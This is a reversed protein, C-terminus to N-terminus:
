FESCHGYCKGGTDSCLGHSGMSHFAGVRDLIVSGRLGLGGRHFTLGCFALDLAFLFLLFLKNGRHVILGLFIILSGREAGAGFGIIDDDVVLGSLLRFLGALRVLSLVGVAGIHLTVRDVVVLLVLFGALVALDALGGLFLGGVARGAGGDHVGVGLHLLAVGHHALVLVAVGGDGGGGLGGAGLGGSGGAGAFSIGGGGNGVGLLAFLDVEVVLKSLVHTRVPFGILIGLQATVGHVLDLGGLVAVGFGQGQCLSVVRSRFLFHRSLIDGLQQIDGLVAHLFLSVVLAVGGIDQFLFLGRGVLVAVGDGAGSVVLDGAVRDLGAGLGRQHELHFLAGNINIILIQGGLDFQWADSGLVGVLGLRIDDLNRRLLQAFHELVLVIVVIGALIDIRFGICVALFIGIFDLFRFVGLLKGVLLQCITQALAKGGIGVANVVLAFLQVKVLHFGHALSQAVGHLDGLDGLGGALDFATLFADLTGLFSGLQFGDLGSQRIGGPVGANIHLGIIELVLQIRDIGGAFALEIETIGICVAINMSDGEAIIPCRNRRRLRAARIRALVGLGALIDRVVDDGAGSIHVARICPGFATGEVAGVDLGAATFKGREITPRDGAFVRLLAGRGVFFFVGHGRGVAGAGLDGTGACDRFRGSGEAIRLLFLNGPRLQQVLVGFILVFILQFSCTIVDIDAAHVEGADLAYFPRDVFKRFGCLRVGLIKVVLQHNGAALVPRDVFLGAGNRHVSLGVVLHGFGIVAVGARDLVFVAYLGGVGEGFLGTSRQGRFLDLGRQCALVTNGSVADSQVGVALGRGERLTVFGDGHIVAGQALGEGDPLIHVGGGTDGVDDLVILIKLLCVVLQPLLNLLDLAFKQGALFEPDAIQLNRVLGLLRVDDLIEGRGDRGFIHALILQDLSQLLLLPDGLAGSVNGVLTRIVFLGLLVVVGTFLRIFEFGEALCRITGFNLDIPFPSPPAAIIVICVSVALFNTNMTVSHVVFLLAVVDAVEIKSGAGLQIQQRVLVTIDILGVTHQHALIQLPVVIGSVQDVTLAVLRDAQVTLDAPVILAALAVAVVLIVAAIGVVARVLAGVVLQGASDGIIGDLLVSVDLQILTAKVIIPVPDTRFILGDIGVQLCSAAVLRGGAERFFLTIGDDAGVNHLNSGGAGVAGTLAAILDIELGGLQGGVAIHGAIGVGADVAGVLALVAGPTVDAAIVQHDGLQGLHTLALDDALRFGGDLGDGGRQADAARLVEGVAKQLQVLLGGCMFGTLTSRSVAFISGAAEVTGIRLILAFRNGSGTGAFAVVGGKGLHQLIVEVALALGGVILAFNGVGVAGRVLHVGRWHGLLGHGGGVGM